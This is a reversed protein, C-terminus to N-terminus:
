DTTMNTFSFVHLEQTLGKDCLLFDNFSFKTNVSSRSRAHVHERGGGWFPMKHNRIM